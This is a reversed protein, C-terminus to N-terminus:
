KSVVPLKAYIKELTEIEFDNKGNKLPKFNFIEPLQEIQDTYSSLNKFYPHLLAEYPTIWLDTDYLLIREILDIFQEEVKYQELIQIIWVKGLEMFHM